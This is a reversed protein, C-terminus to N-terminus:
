SSIFLIYMIIFAQYVTNRYVINHSNNLTIILDERAKNSLKIWTM